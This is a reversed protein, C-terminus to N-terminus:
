EKLRFLTKSDSFIGYSGKVVIKDPSKVQLDGRLELGYKAYKPPRITVEFCDEEEKKEFDKFLVVEKRQLIANEKENPSYVVQGIWKGEKQFISIIGGTKADKWKGALNQQGKAALPISALVILGIIIPKSNWRAPRKGFRRFQIEDFKKVYDPHETGMLRDWIRFYYGYNGKFKEHHLNHHVSTNMIEFLISHRFWKPAIEYGLHGYVNFTIATLIMVLIALPHMPIVMLIFPFVLTELISESVNFAHSAFPSPNTSQHHVLHVKRFFWKHHIARHMWYFYTDHIVIAVLVSLPIWWLPYANIERYIQTYEKLPSFIVLIAILSFIALTYVSHLLERVIDQNNIIKEQIKQKDFKDPYFIYFILFPVGAFLLFRVVNFIVPILYKIYNEM